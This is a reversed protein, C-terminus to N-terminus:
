IPFSLYHTISETFDAFYHRNVFTVFKKDLDVMTVGLLSAAFTITTPKLLSNKKQQLLAKVDKVAQTVADDGTRAGVEIAALYLANTAALKFKPLQM